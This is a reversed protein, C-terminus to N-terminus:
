GDWRGGQPRTLSGGRCSDQKRVPRRLPDDGGGEGDLAPNWGGKEKNAGFFLGKSLVAGRYAAGVCGARSSPSVTDQKKRVLKM